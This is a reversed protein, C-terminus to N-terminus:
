KLPEIVLNDFSARAGSPADSRASADFGVSYAGAIPFELKHRLVERDQVLLRVVAGDIEVRWRERCPSGGARDATAVDRPEGTETTISYREGRLQIRFVGEGGRKQGQPIFVVATVVSGHLIPVDVDTSLALPSAFAQRSLLGAGSWGDAGPTKTSLTIDL